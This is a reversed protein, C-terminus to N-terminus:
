GTAPHPAPVAEHSVSILVHDDRLSVDVVGKTAEDEGDWIWVERGGHPDDSALKAILEATTMPRAYRPAPKLPTPRPETREKRWARLADRLAGNLAREGSTSGADDEDAM